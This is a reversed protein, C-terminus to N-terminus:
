GDVVYGDLRNRQAGAFEVGVFEEGPNLFDSLFLTRVDQAEFPNHGKLVIWLAINDLTHVHDDFAVMLASPLIAFFVLASQHEDATLKIM